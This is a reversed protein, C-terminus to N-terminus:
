LIKVLVRSVPRKQVTWAVLIISAFPGWRFVVLLIFRYSLILHSIGRYAVPIVCIQPTKCALQQERLWVLEASHATGVRLPFSCRQSDPKLGLVWYLPGPWRLVVSCASLPFWAWYSRDFDAQNNQWLWRKKDCLELSSIAALLCLCV